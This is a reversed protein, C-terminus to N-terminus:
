GFSVEYAVGADSAGVPVLFVELDGVQPHSLRYMRQAHAAPRGVFELSFPERFGPPGRRRRIGTLVLSFPAGGALPCAEFSQGKVPEFHDPTVSALDPLDPM